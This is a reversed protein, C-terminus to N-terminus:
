KYLRTSRKILNTSFRDLSHKAYSYKEKFSGYIEKWNVLKLSYYIILVLFLSNTLVIIFSGIFSIALSSSGVMSIIAMRSTITTIISIAELNNLKESFFPKIMILIYVYILLIIFFSLSISEENM